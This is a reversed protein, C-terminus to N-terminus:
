SVTLESAATDAYFRARISRVRIARRRVEVPITHVTAGDSLTTVRGKWTTGDQNLSCLLLIDFTCYICQTQITISYM